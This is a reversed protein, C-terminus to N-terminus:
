TSVDVSIELSANDSFVVIRYIEGDHVWVLEQKVIGRESDGYLGLCDRLAGPSQPEWFKQHTPM